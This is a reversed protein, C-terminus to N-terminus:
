SIKSFINKCINKLFNPTLYLIATKITYMNNFINLYSFLKEPKHPNSKRKLLKNKLLIDINKNSLLQDWLLIHEKAYNKWTWKSVSDVLVKRKNSIDNFTKVIDDFTRVPYSIGGIADLHYGQPTVITPVGASLADMFAMSGEDFSFYFFYDLTPVLEVYRDYNFNEFYDVKFGMRKLKNVIENWGSGMVKFSFDDPNIKKCLRLLINEQKRGDEHVKSLIGIVIKRPNIVEDHAPNIYYLKEKPIGSDILKQMTDLSMCVGLKASELQKKLIKLKFPSDIHTIMLTDISNKHCDYSFYIIHHNIDANGNPVKAIDSDVGLKTLEENLKKAFKGLIWTDVDEYCVIRVKM